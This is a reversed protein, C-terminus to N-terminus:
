FGIKLAVTLIGDFVPVGPRLGYIVKGNKFNLGLGASRLFSGEVDGCDFFLFTQGTFHFDLKLGWGRTAEISGYRYGRFFEVGGLKEVQFTSDSRTFLFLEAGLRGRTIGMRYTVRYRKSRYVISSLLKLHGRRIKLGTEGFAVGDQRQFGQRISIGKVHFIMGGGARRHSEEGQIESGYFTYISTNLGHFFPYVLDFRLSGRLVTIRSYDFQINVPRGRISLFKMKLYGSIGGANGTVAAGFLAQPGIEKVSILLVIGGGAKLFGIHDFVLYGTSNIRQEVTKILEPTFVKGRLDPLIDKVGGARDPEIRVGSIRALPGEDIIVLVTDTSRVIKVRAFPFGRTLYLGLIKQAVLSDADQLNKSITNLITSHSLVRNGIIKVGPGTTFLMSSLLLKLM